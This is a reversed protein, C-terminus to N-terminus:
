PRPTHTDMHSPTEESSGFIVTEQISHIFLAIIIFFFTILLILEAGRHSM